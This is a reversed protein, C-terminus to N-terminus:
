AEDIKWPDIDTSMDVEGPDAIELSARDFYCRAFIDGDFGIALEKAM